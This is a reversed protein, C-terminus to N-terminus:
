ANLKDANRVMKESMPMVPSTVRSALRLTSSRWFYRAVAKAM